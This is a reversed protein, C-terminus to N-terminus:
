ISPPATLSRQRTERHPAHRAITITWTKLTGDTRKRIRFLTWLMPSRHVLLSPAQARFPWSPPSFRLAKSIRYPIFVISSMLNMGYSPRWTMFMCNRLLQFTKMARMVAM